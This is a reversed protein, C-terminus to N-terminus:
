WNEHPLICSSNIRFRWPNEKKFIVHFWGQVGHQGQGNEGVNKRFMENVIKNDVTKGKGGVNNFIQEAATSLLSLQSVMEDEVKQGKERVNKLIEDYVHENNEKFLLASFENHESHITLPTWEDGTLPIDVKVVYRNSKKNTESPKGAVMTRCVEFTCLKYQSSINKCEEKHNEWDERQCSAGCYLVGYCGTCKKLKGETTSCRQCKNTSVKNNNKEKPM